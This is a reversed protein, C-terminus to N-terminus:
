IFFIDETNAYKEQSEKMFPHNEILKPNDVLPRMKQAWGRYFTTHELISIYKEALAYQGTIISMETLQKLARGSKNHNPIYEMAEFTARQSINPWGLLASIDSVIFASSVSGFYVILHMDGTCFVSPTSEYREVPVVIKSMLEQYSIRGSKYAALIVASRVAPSVPSPFRKLMKNWNQQRMLMDCEMEEYTGMEKAGSWHYDIGKAVQELPYPVLCSSGILCAAFLTATLPIWRICCLTLLLAAPGTLWYMVPILACLVFLRSRKTRLGMVWCAVGMVLLVAITLTLPVHPLMALAWLVVPPILSFIFPYPSSHLLKKGLLQTVVFLFAYFIAGNVPNVFFQAVGEGVYQAMGGPTVIREMLYDTNWLFLVSMERAVPIFPYLFLWFCFVGVALLAVIFLQRIEKREMKM